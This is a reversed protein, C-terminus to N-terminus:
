HLTPREANKGSGVGVEALVAHGNGAWVELGHDVPHALFEGLGFALALAIFEFFLAGTFM